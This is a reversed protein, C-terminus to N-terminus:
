VLIEAPDLRAAFRAARALLTQGDVEILAKPTRATLVGLRSGLGAALLVVQM